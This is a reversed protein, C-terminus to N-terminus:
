RGWFGKEVYVNKYSYENNPFYRSKKKKKGTDSCCSLLMTIAIAVFIKKM